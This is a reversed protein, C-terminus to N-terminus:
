SDEPKPADEKRRYVWVRHPLTELIPLVEEESLGGKGIGPFNLAFLKNEHKESLYRLYDVSKRILDLDSPQRWDYKSQFSGVLTGAYEIGPPVAIGYFGHKDIMEPILKGLARPLEPFRQKAELAAGAGM